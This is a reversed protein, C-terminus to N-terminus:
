KAVARIYKKKCLEDFEKITGEFETVVPHVKNPFFLKIKM